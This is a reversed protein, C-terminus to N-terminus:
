RHSVMSLIQGGVKELKYANSPELSRDQAARTFANIVQFMTYGPELYYARQVLKTEDQTLGFRQGFSAISSEPDDVRSEMSFAFQSSKSGLSLVVNGVVEQFNEIAKTSTHRFRVNEKTESILGNTCVLRFFWAQINFAMLGVESNAFSIGPVVKDDGRLGFTRAYDPVKLVFIKDDFAYQVKTQPDFGHIMMESLIQLNDLPKYRETFVARLRNANFRCFLKARKKQEQEIWYNLNRAQLDEPCRELYTFPVKLRNALLRQATLLVEVPKGSVWMRKLSDFEMEHVPVTEDHHFASTEQIKEIVKELTTTTTM